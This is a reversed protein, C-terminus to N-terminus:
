EGPRRRFLIGIQMSQSALRCLIQLMFVVTPIRSSSSASDCWLVTRLCWPYVSVDTLTFDNGVFLLAEGYRGLMVLSLEVVTAASVLRRLDQDIATALREASPEDTLIAVLASTDIVM